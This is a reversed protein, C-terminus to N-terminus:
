ATEPLAPVTAMPLTIIFSAGGQPLNEARITGHHLEVIQKCITLGLGVGRHNAANQERYFKQFVRNPDEVPLGPGRDSVIIKIFTGAPQALIDIPSEAPTYQLANDILNMFVQELLTGDAQVLPLDAPLHTDVRRGALRKRLRGLVSSIVEALPYPEPQIEVRGAELRTMDLLNTILREMRESEDAINELLEHQGSSDIAAGSELLTSVSGTIAALPTRLDHSVGSLLTNRISESEVRAWARQATEALQARQLAVATVNAFAELLRLRDPDALASLNTGTLALVGIQADGSRLPVYLGQASPLTETTCGASQNHEFVWQAVSREKEDQIPMDITTTADALRNQDNPLLIAARCDFVGAIHSASTDLLKQKDQNAALDRALELLAATRRERLRAAQSQQQLRGTLTSIILATALMAVFTILYQTDSVALSYYPPVVTIDFAVVALISALLAPGRGLRLAIFLVGLLDLMLVNANSFRSEGGVIHYLFWGAATTASVVGVALGYSARDMKRPRLSMSSVTTVPKEDRMVLIDIPGSLRIMDDVMSHRLWERWRPQQPKGTIIRAINKSRAFSLIEEAARNGALTIAQGGLNEALRLAQTVRERADASLHVAQPTEVYVAFWQTKLAAAMRRTARILQISFPSPGVCVLLREAAPWLNVSGQQRQYASMQADVRDATRRLALERLASLNGANFFQKTIHDVSHQRYIKGEQMREILKEPPLDILHVEDARELVWDPLTERVKIGSIREVVDNVSELHQVNLTTYVSIGADLLEFVDQYRKPHRMGPANTHALEDVCVIAPKRALIADIDFEKLTVGKYEMFKYRQIELGLLLAETDPRIHPEAYGIVVDAGEATRKRAEELMAYTKGVGPAAGFFITLRGRAAKTEEAQMQALLTDPNPRMDSMNLMM